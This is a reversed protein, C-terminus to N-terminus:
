NQPPLYLSKWGSVDFFSQRRSLRPPNNELLKSPDTKIVTFKGGVVYTPAGTIKITARGWNDLQPKVTDGFCDVIQFDNKDLSIQLDSYRPSISYYSYWPPQSYLTNCDDRSEDCNFTVLVDNPKYIQFAYSPSCFASGAMTFPIRKWIVAVNGRKTSFLLGHHSPDTLYIEGIFSASDLYYAATQYAWVSAKPTTDRKFLGYYNEPDHSNRYDAEAKTEAEQKPVFHAYDFLCYFMLKEVGLAIAIACKLAINCAATNENTGPDGMYPYTCGYFEGLWIKKSSGFNDKNFKNIRKLSAIFSYNEVQAGWKVDPSIPYNPAHFDIISYEQLINPDSKSVLKQLYDIGTCTIAPFALPYSQYNANRFSVLESLFKVNYSLKTEEKTLRAADNEQPHVNDIENSAAGFCHIQPQAKWRGPDSTNMDNMWQSTTMQSPTLYDGWYDNITNTCKPPDLCIGPQDIERYNFFKYDGDDYFDLNARVSKAGILKLLNKTLDIKKQADMELYKLAYGSIGFRSSNSFSRRIIVGATTTDPEGVIIGANKITTIIYCPGIRGPYLSITRSDDATITYSSSTTPEFQIGNGNVDKATIAVSLQGAYQIDSVKITCNFIDCRNMPGNIHWFNGEEGTSVLIKLAFIQWFCGILSIIFTLKTIYLKM